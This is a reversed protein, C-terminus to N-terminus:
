RRFLSFFQRQYEEFVGWRMLEDHVISADIERRRARELLSEIHLRAERPIGDDDDLLGKSGLESFNSRSSQNTFEYIFKMLCVDWLESVGLIVTELTKKQKDLSQGINTAVDFPNGSVSDTSHPENHYRYLLGPTDSGFKNTLYELYESAENGFGETRSLYGPTVLKPREAKVIGHRIMSEDPLDPIADQYVPASVVHYNVITAGFTELPKKPARVIQTMAVAELLEPDLETHDFERM